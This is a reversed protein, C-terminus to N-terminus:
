LIMNRSRPPVTSVKALYDPETEGLGQPVQLIAEVANATIFNKATQIGMGPRDEIKPVAPKRRADPYKFAALAM